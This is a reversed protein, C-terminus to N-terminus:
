IGYRRPVPKLRLGMFSLTNAHGQRFNEFGRKALEMSFSKRSGPQEGARIAFETWSAFLNATAEWKYTNGPEADCAEALWQAMLDQDAFYSETARIVSEPRVLGNAQWDLCGDIM